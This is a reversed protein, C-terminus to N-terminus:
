RGQGKEEEVGPQEAKWNGYAFLLSLMESPAKNSIFHEAAKQKADDLKGLEKFLRKELDKNGKDNKWAELAALANTEDPGDEEEKEDQDATYSARGKKNWDTWGKIMKKSDKGFTRAFYGVYNKERDELKAMAKFLDIEKEEDDPQAEFEQLALRANHLDEEGEAFEEKLFVVGVGHVPPLLHNRPHIGIRSMLRATLPDPQSM